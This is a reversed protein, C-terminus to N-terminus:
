TTILTWYRKKEFLIHGDAAKAEILNGVFYYGATETDSFELTTADFYVEQGPTDFTLEGAKMATEAVQLQIGEEVHWSGVAASAIPDDAIGAYPGVIAFEYQVVDAGTDNVYRVHDCQEKEIYVTAAM